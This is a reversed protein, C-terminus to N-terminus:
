ICIFLVDFLSPFETNELTEAKRFDSFLLIYIYTYCCFLITTSGQSSIKIKLLLYMLDSTGMDPLLVWTGFHRVM